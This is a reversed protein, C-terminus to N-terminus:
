ALAFATIATLWRNQLVIVSSHGDPLAHGALAGPCPAASM